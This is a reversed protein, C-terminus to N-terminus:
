LTLMANNRTVLIRQVNYTNDAFNKAKNRSWAYSRLKAYFYVTM